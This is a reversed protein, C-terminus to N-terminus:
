NIGRLGISSRHVGLDYAHRLAATDGAGSFLTIRLQEEANLHLNQFFAVLSAVAVGTGVADTFANRVLAPTPAGSPFIPEAASGAPEPGDTFPSDPDRVIDVSRVLTAANFASLDVLLRGGEWDRRTSPNVVHDVTNSMAPLTRPRALLVDQAVGAALTVTTTFYDQNRIVSSM